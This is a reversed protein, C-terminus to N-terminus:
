IIDFKVQFEGVRVDTIIILCRETLLQIRLYIIDKREGTQRDTRRDCELIIDFRGFYKYM